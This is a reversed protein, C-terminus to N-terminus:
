LVPEPAYLYDLFGARLQFDNRRTAEDSVRKYSGFLSRFNAPADPLQANRTASEVLRGHVETLARKSYRLEFTLPEPETSEPM